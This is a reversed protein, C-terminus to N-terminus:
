AFLHLDFCTCVMLESLGDVGWDVLSLLGDSDNCIGTILVLFCENKIWSALSIIIEAAELGGCENLIWLCVLIGDM